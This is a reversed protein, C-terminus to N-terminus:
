RGVSQSQHFLSSQYQAGFAVATDIFNAYVADPASARTLLNLTMGPVHGSPTVIPRTVIGQMNLQGLFDPLLAVGQGAAVMNMIIPMQVAEYLIQAEFDHSGFLQLMAGYLQSGIGRPPGILQAKALDQVTVAPQAALAHGVPLFARLPNTVLNYTRGGGDYHRNMWILAMDVTGAAIDHWQMQGAKDHLTIELRVQPHDARFRQLMPGVLPHLSASFHVGIRIRGVAGQAVMRVHEATQRVDDLINQAVRYLYKGAETLAVKRNTRVFLKASLENELAMIQQSLPPQSIHLRQAARGFHLEEAVAIFSRLQRLNINNIDM